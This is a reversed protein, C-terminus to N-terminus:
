LLLQLTVPLTVKVFYLLGMQPGWDVPAFDERNVLQLCLMGRLIGREVKAM